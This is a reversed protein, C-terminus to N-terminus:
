MNGTVVFTRLVSSWSGATKTDAGAGSFGQWYFTFVKSTAITVPLAKDTQKIQKSRPPVQRRVSLSAVYVTERVWNTM